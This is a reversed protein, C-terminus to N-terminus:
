VANNNLHSMLAKLKLLTCICFPFVFRTALLIWDSARRWLRVLSEANLEMLLHNIFGWLGQAGGNSGIPKKQLLSITLVMFRPMTSFVFYVKEPELFLTWEGLQLRTRVALRLDSIHTLYTVVTCCFFSKQSVFWGRVLM